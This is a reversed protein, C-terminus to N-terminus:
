GKPIISYMSMDTDKLFKRMRGEFEFGLHKILTEAKECDSICLTQVRRFGSNWLLHKGFTLFDSLHSNKDAETNLYLWAQLIGYPLEIPIIGGFMIPKDVDLGIYCEGQSANFKIHERVETDTLYAREIGDYVFIETYKPDYPIIEM